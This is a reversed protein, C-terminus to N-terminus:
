KKKQAASYWDDKGKKKKKKQAASYWGPKTEPSTEPSADSLQRAFFEKTKKLVTERDLDPDLSCIAKVAEKKKDRIWPTTRIVNAIQQKGVGLVSPGLLGALHPVRPSVAGAMHTAKKGAVQGAVDSLITLIYVASAEVIGDFLKNTIYTCSGIEGKQLKELEKPTLEGATQAIVGILFSNPDLGLIEALKITIAKVTSDKLLKPIGKTQNLQNVIEKDLEGKTIKDKLSQVGEETGKGVEKIKKDFFSQLKKEMYKEFYRDMKDTWDRKRKTRRRKKKKKKKKEEEILEELALSDIEVIKDSM